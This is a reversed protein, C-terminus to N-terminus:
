ARLWRSRSSSAIAALRELTIPAKESSKRVFSASTAARSGQPKRGRTIPWSSPAGM